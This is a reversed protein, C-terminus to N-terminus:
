FDLFDSLITYPSLPLHFIPVDLASKVKLSFSVQNEPNIKICSFALLSVPM